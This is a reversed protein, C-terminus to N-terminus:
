GISSRLQDPRSCFATATSVPSTPPRARRAVMGAGYSARACSAGPTSRPPRTWTGRPTSRGSASPTCASASGGTPRRPPAPSGPGSMHRCQFKSGPENSTFRFTATRSRTPPRAAHDHEAPDPRHDLDRRRSDPGGDNRRRHSHGRLHPLGRRVAWSSMRRRARPAFPAGDHSCQVHGAPSTRRLRVDRRSTTGDEGTPAAHLLGGPATPSPTSRTSSSCAGTARSRSAQTSPTLLATKLEAVTLSPNRALLLAAAGAVHPTAMSTGAFPQYTGGTATLCFIAVDLYVGDM